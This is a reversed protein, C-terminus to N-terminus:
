NQFAMTSHDNSVRMELFVSTMTLQKHLEILMKYEIIV